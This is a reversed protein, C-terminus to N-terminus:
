KNLMAIYRDCVSSDQSRLRDILHRRLDYISNVTSKGLFMAITKKSFGLISFLFFRYEDEKLNKYDNHLAAMIGDCHKNAMDELQKLKKPDSFSKILRKVENAIRQQEKPTDVWEFSIKCTADFEEFHSSLLEAINNQSDTVTQEKLSLDEQLQRAVDTYQSIIERNHKYRDYFLWCLIVLVLLIIAIIMWLRFMAKENNAKELQKAQEFHITVANSMGQTTKGSLVENTISDLTEFYELADKYRGSAKHIKYGLYYRVPKQTREGYKNLIATAQPIQNLYVYTLGLYISDEANAVPLSCVNEWSQKAHIYDRTSIYFKGLNAFLDAELAQMGRAKASDLTQAILEIAKISDKMNYYAQALKSAACITHVQKDTQKFNDYAIIAYKLEEVHNYTLNYIDSIERASMASWFKDDLEQALAHANLMSTMAQPYEKRCYEVSGKYYYTLTKLHKDSKGSYYKVAISILSDDTEQIYNRFKAQTLLLAYRAQLESGQPLPTGDIASLIALASDPHESMLTDARDLAAETAAHRNCSTSVSLAAIAIIVLIALNKM